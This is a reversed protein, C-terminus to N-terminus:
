SPGVFDVLADTGGAGSKAAAYVADGVFDITDERLASRLLGWERRQFLRLSRRYYKELKPSACAIRAAAETAVPQTVIQDNMSKVADYVTSVDQARAGASWMSGALACGVLPGVLRGARAM